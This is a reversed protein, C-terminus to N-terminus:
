KLVPLPSVSICIGGFSFLYTLCGILIATLILGAVGRLLLKQGHAKQQLDKKSRAVKVVGYSIYMLSLAVTIFICFTFLVASRRHIDDFETPIPRCPDIVKLLELLFLFLTVVVPPITFWLLPLGLFDYLKKM